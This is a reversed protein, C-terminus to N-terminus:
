EFRLPLWEWLDCRQGSYYQEVWGNLGFYACESSVSNYTYTIRLHPTGFTIMLGILVAWAIMWIRPRFFWLVRWLRVHKRKSLFHPIDAGESTRLGRILGLTGIALFIGPLIWAAGGADLDPAMRLTLMIIGAAVFCALQGSLTISPGSVPPPKKDLHGGAKLGMENHISGTRVGMEGLQFDEFERETTM